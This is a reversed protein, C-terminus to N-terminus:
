THRMSEAPVTLAARLAPVITALIVFTFLLAIPAIYTAASVESRWVADMSVGMMGVGAMGQLVLGHHVMYWNVPVSLLAGVIAAVSAQLMAEVLILTFVFRPGFGLAKLVGFERIREFVAMLMANLIVIGIALYVVSMMVVLAGQASELMSAIGPNIERWTPADLTPILARLRTVERALQEPTRAGPPLRIVLQHAGDPTVMLERFAADTIFVGGRDIEESLPKLVGAVRYLENAMSGDAAQSLVILEAGVDVGLQKAIRGGIVAGSHDDATLWVGRALAEPIKSIKPERDLDVGYLRVGASSKGAAALGSGLLRPAANFSADDLARLVAPVDDIREYISPSGRYDKHFAQADGLGFDLLKSQMRTMMGASLGSYFILMFVALTMAAVTAGSRRANRWLSRWAMLAIM